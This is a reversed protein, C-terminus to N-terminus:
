GPTVTETVRAGSGTMLVLLAAVLGVVVVGSAVVAALRSGSEVTQATTFLDAGGTEVQSFAIPLGVKEPQDTRHIEAALAAVRAQSRGRETRWLRWAVASMTTALAMSIITVIL